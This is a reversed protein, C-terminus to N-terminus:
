AHKNNIINIYESHPVLTSMQENITNLKPFLIALFGETQSKNQLLEPERTLRTNAEILKANLCSYLIFKAEQAPEEDIKLCTVKCLAQTSNLNKANHKHKGSMEDNVNQLFEVKQIKYKSSDLM